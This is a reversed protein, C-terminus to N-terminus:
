EEYIMHERFVKKEEDLAPMLEDLVEKYKTPNHILYLYVNKETVFNTLRITGYNFIRGLFGQELRLSSLHEFKNAEERKMFFGRKHIVENPTIKYYENVWQLVVYITIIMKVFVLTIFLPMGIYMINTGYRTIDSATLFVYYTLVMGSAAILDICLLRLLLFSISQRVTVYKLGIFEEVERKKINRVKITKDM